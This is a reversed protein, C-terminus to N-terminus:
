GRHEKAAREDRHATEGRGSAPSPLTLSSTRHATRQQVAPLAEKAFVSERGQTNTECGQAHGKPSIRGGNVAASRPGPLAAREQACFGFCLLALCPLGISASVDDHHGQDSLM